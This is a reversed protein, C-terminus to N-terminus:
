SETKKSQYLINPCFYGALLFPKLEQLGTEPTYGLVEAALRNFRQFNFAIAHKYRALTSAIAENFNAHNTKQLFPELLAHTREGAESQSLLYYILQGAGFAYVPDTQFHASPNDLVETLETKHAELKSPMIKSKKTTHDFYQYLSFYINLKLRLPYDKNERLDDLISTICLDEFQPRGIASRLSKYVFDYCAKRYKLLLRFIAPRYYKADLDDFYRMSVEGKKGDIKILTNNFLQRLVITEFDFVTALRVQPLVEDKNKVETVNEIVWSPPEGNTATEDLHYRFKPVFDFDQIKGGAFYVLYYNGLDGKRKWLQTIIERHTIKKDESRHYLSLAEETLEPQDIFIPTPTPFLKKNSLSEYEALLQAERGTIRGTIDFSATQHILFPKKSNFGNLFNSTGYVEGNLEVNYESTNFLGESIYADHFARYEELPREVYIVIYDGQDLRAYDPIDQLLGQMQGKLYKKFWVAVEQGHEDLGFRSDLCKDFYIDTRALIDRSTDKPYKDGGIWSERKFAFCYPSASHIGKAPLDFCKNTDIMWAHEQRGACAKLFNSIDGHKKGGYYESAVMTALEDGELRVLVHLGPKPVLAREKVFDPVNQAFQTLERIM